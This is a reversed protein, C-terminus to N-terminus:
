IYIYIKQLKNINSRNFFKRVEDNLFNKIKFLKSLYNKNRLITFSTVILSFIILPIKNIGFFTTLLSIFGLLLQSFPFSTFLAAYIIKENLKNERPLLFITSSIFILLFSLM